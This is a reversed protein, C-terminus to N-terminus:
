TYKKNVQENGMGKLISAKGTKNVMADRARPVYYSSLLCTIFAHIMDQFMKILISVFLFHESYSLLVNIVM